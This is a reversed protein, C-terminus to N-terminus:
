LDMSDSMALKADLLGIAQAQEVIDFQNQSDFTVDKGFLRPNDSMFKDVDKGTNVAHMRLHMVLCIRTARKGNHTHGLLALRHCLDCFETSHMGLAGAREIVESASVAHNPNPEQDVLREMESTMLEVITESKDRIQALPPGRCGSPYMVGRFHTNYEDENLSREKALSEDLQTTTFSSAEVRRDTRAKSAKKRKLFAKKEKNSMAAWKDAPIKSDDVQSKSVEPVAKACSRATDAYTQTASTAPGDVKSTLEKPAEKDKKASKAKSVAVEIGKSPIPVKAKSPLPGGQIFQIMVAVMETYVSNGGSIMGRMLEDLSARMENCLFADLKVPDTAIELPVSTTKLAKNVDKNSTEYVTKFRQYLSM